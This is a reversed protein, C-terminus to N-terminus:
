TSPCKATDLALTVEGNKGVEKIKIPSKNAVRIFDGKEISQIVNMIRDYTKKKLFIVEDAM